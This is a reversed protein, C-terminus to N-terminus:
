ASLLEAHVHLGRAALWDRDIEGAFVEEAPGTLWV